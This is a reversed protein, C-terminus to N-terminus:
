SIFRSFIQLAQTFYPSIGRLLASFLLNTIHRRILVKRLFIYALSLPATKFVWSNKQSEGAIKKKFKAAEFFRKGEVQRPRPIISRWDPQDAPCLLPQSKTYHWSHQPPTGSHGIPATEFVTTAKHAVTPEFGM